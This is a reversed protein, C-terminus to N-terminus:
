GEFLDSQLYRCTRATRLITEFLPFSEQKKGEMIIEGDCLKQRTTLSAQKWKRWFDLSCCSMHIIHVNDSMCDQTINKRQEEGREGRRSLHNDDPFCCYTDAAKSTASRKTKFGVMAGLFCGHGCLFFFVKQEQGFRHYENKKEAREELVPMEAHVWDLRGELM